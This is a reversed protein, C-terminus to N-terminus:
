TVKLLGERFAGSILILLPLKPVSVLARSARMPCSPNFNTKQTGVPSGEAAVAMSASCWPAQSQDSPIGPSREPVSARIVFPNPSDSIIEINTFGVHDVMAVCCAGNFVWFVTPDFSQQDKGSMLGHPYFRAWPTGRIAEDECTHTQFLLDGTCVSRIREM